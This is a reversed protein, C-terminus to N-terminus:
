DEDLLHAWFAVVQWVDRVSASHDVSAHSVLPTAVQRVRVGRASLAGALLKSEVAPIVNDDMGHMLYIAASPTDARAPSLAADGGYAPLHPLLMPGLHTVDRDNVFQALTRAPEPLAAATARAASFEVQAQAKDWMDIQSAHLFDLIAQRLPQVQAAPVMREAVGLLIIAIGYDHPPRLSGDPQVGTCLYKLTRPLDGHGGFSLVYAVRERLSPRAAAVISLGGAFSIGMMGIRGNRAFGSRSSLWLAADEIMDTSRTTISYHMLDALETTVVIRGTAAIDRAFQVLRPEDIGSAHVGPVLLTVPGNIEAPRYVRGRLVGGRWPVSTDTETVAETTWEAVDRVTGHYGAAQVLFATSRVYDYGLAVISVLLLVPTIVIALAKRSRPM